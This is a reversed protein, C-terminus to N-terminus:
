LSSGVIKISKGRNQRKSLLTVFMLDGKNQNATLGHSVMLLLRLVVKFRIFCKKFRLQFTWNEHFV